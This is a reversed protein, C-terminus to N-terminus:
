PRKVVKVSLAYGNGTVAVPIAVISACAQGDVSEAAGYTVTYGSPRPLEATLVTVPAGGPCAFSITTLGKVYEAASALVSEAQSQERNNSTISVHTGLATLLGAIGISLIALAVLIEVLTDGRDSNQQGTM